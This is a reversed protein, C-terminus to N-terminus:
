DECSSIRNGECVNDSAGCVATYNFLSVNCWFHSAIYVEYELKINKQGHMM